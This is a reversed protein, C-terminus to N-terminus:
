VEAGAVRFGRVSADSARSLETQSEWGGAVLRM